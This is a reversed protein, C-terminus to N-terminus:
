DLFSNVKQLHEEYNVSYHTVGNKDTLYYNYPTKEYNLISELANLGFSAIPTPPLGKNKRTNYPSDFNLDDRELIKPWWDMEISLNYSPCVVSVSVNVCGVKGKAVAYQTTADAGLLEDSKFRKVLIGAVKARDEKKSVEREVISALVFVENKTLQVNELDKETLAKGTKENFTNRLLDIMETETINSNVWYTDPFLTGELHSALSVFDEYDINDLNVAAYGAIEEIRWGELFTLKVDDTGHELMDVLDVLTAGSPIVYKGAQINKDKNNLFVYVNFLFESNTAGLSSLKRSVDLVGEGEKIEVTVEKGIQNPRNVAFSYYTYSLLPLVIILLPLGILILKQKLKPTLTHYKTPDLQESM